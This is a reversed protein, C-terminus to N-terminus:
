DLCAVLKYIMLGKRGFSCSLKSCTTVQKNMSHDIVQEKVCKINKYFITKIQLPHNICSIYSMKYACEISLFNTIM